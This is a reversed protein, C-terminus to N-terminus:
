SYRNFKIKRSKLQFIKITLGLVAEVLLKSTGSLIIIWPRAGMNRFVRLKHLKFKM